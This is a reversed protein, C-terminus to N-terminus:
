VCVMIKMSGQMKMILKGSLTVFLDFSIDFGQLSSFIFFGLFQLTMVDM